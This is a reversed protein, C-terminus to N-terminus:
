EAPPLGPLRPDAVGVFGVGQAFWGHGLWAGTVARPCRAFPWCRSVFAAVSSVYMGVCRAPRGSTCRFARLVVLSMVLPLGTAVVLYGAEQRSAAGRWVIGSARYVLYPLGGPGLAGGAGRGVGVVSSRSYPSLMVTRCGSEGLEKGAGPVFSCHVSHVQRDLFQMFDFTSVASFIAGWRLRRPWRSTSRDLRRRRRTM